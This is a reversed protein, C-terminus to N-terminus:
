LHSGRAVLEAVDIAAALLAARFLWRSGPRRALFVGAAMTVAVALIAAGAWWGPRGPGFSETVTAALLLIMAAAVSRPRGLLHPVGRIGAAKDEALDPVANVLHAGCGLLAAAALAWWPPWAARPGGLTIFAVLLPFAVAYPLFSAITAKLRANYAWAVLVGTLHALAARWGSQLSLPVAAALAALACWGLLRRSLDGAAVPKDSRGAAADREADVWDNHWGVSLQGALVALGVSAVGAPSHGTAVALTVALATVMATPEPHSARVLAIARGAQRAGAARVQRQEAM